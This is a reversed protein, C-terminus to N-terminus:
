HNQDFKEEVKRLFDAGDIQKQFKLSVYFISSGFVHALLLNLFLQCFLVFAGQGIGNDAQLTVSAALHLLNLGQKLYYM